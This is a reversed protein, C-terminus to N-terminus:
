GKMLNRVTFSVEELILASHALTAPHGEASATIVREWCMMNLVTHETVKRGSVSRGIKNPVFTLFLPMCKESDKRCGQKKKVDFLLCFWSSNINTGPNPCHGHSFWM